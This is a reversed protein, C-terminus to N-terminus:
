VKSTSPKSAVVAKRLHSAPQYFDARARVDVSGDDSDSDSEDGYSDDSTFVYAQSSKKRKPKSQQTGNTHVYSTDPETAGVPASGRRAEGRVM